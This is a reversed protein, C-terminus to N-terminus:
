TLLTMDSIGGKANKSVMKDYVRHIMSLMKPRTYVDFIYDTFGKLADLSIYSSHGSLSYTTGTGSSLLLDCDRYCANFEKTVDTFLYVDADAHFIRSFNMTEMWEKLIFHRQISILEFKYENSSLHTYISAFEHSRRILLNTSDTFNISHFNVGYSPSINFFSNNFDSIVHVTNGMSVAAKIAEIFYANNGRKAGNSFPFVVPIITSLPKNRYSNSACTKENM